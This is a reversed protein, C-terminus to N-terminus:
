KKLRKWQASYFEKFKRAVDRGIELIHFKKPIRVSTKGFYKPKRDRASFLLPAGGDKRDVRFLPGPYDRARIGVADSFSLPIWLMPKGRITAGFQFVKFYPVSHRITMVIRGGGETIPATLGEQWRANGFNSAGRMDARGRTLFETQTQKTAERSAALVRDADRKRNARFQAGVQTNDFKIRLTAM